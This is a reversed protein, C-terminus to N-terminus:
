SPNNEKSGIEGELSCPSECSEEEQLEVVKTNYAEVPFVLTMTTGEGKISDIQLEGKHHKIIRRVMPLGLGYGKAEKWKSNFPQLAKKIDQEDMGCGTDKVSLHAHTSDCSTRVLINGGDPMARVANLVLNTLAQQIQSPNAVLTIPKDFSYKFDVNEPVLSSVFECTRQTIDNLSVAGILPQLDKSHELLSRTLHSAHECGTLAAQLRKEMKEDGAILRSLSQLHAVSACLANNLDHAIGLTVERFALSGLTAEAPADQRKDEESM